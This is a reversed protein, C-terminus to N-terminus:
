NEINFEQQNHIDFSEPIEFDYSLGFSSKYAQTFERVTPFIFYDQSEFIMEQNNNMRLVVSPM